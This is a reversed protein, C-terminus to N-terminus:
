VLLVCRTGMSVGHGLRLLALAGVKMGEGFQGIAAHHQAKQSYGLLLVKRSLSICRNTMCLKQTRGDYILEGLKQGTGRLVVHYSTVNGVSSKAIDISAVSGVATTGKSISCEIAAALVGDYRANNSSLDTTFM